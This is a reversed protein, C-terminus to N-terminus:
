KISEDGLYEVIFDIQLFVDNMM